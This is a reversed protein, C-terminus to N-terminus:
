KSAQPSYFSARPKHSHPSLSIFITPFDNKYNSHNFDKLEM